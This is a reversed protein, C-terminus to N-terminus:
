RQIAQRCKMVRFILCDNRLFKNPLESLHIFNPIGKGYQSRTGRTVRDAFQKTTVETYRITQSYCDGKWQNVMEIVLEGCYPWTVEDDFEGRMFYAFVSVYQGKASGEGNPLVELCMRYGGQHTYFPPSFWNSNERKLKTYNNFTLEATVVLAVKNHKDSCPLVERQDQSNRNNVIVIPMKNSQKDEGAAEVKKLLHSNEERLRKVECRMEVQIAEVKKLVDGLTRALMTMHMSSRMELHEPMSRRALRATCGFEKFECSLVKMPCDNHIHSDMDVYMLTEGCLNPCRTPSFECMPRHNTMVEEFTSRYKGCYQCQYPRKMCKEAMHHELESQKVSKLCRPCEVKNYQCCTPDGKDGSGLHKRLRKLTGTWKCGEGENTCHVEVKRIEKRLPENEFGDFSAAMCNPCPQGVLVLDQLCTQCFGQGCCTVQCPDRLIGKCAMCHILLPRPLPKVLNCHYGGVPSQGPGLTTEPEQQEEKKPLFHECTKHGFGEVGAFLQKAFTKKNTIDLTAM